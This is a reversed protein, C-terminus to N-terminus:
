RIPKVVNRGSRPIHRFLVPKLTTRFAKTRYEARYALEKKKFAKCRLGSLIILTAVILHTTAALYIFSMDDIYEVGSFYTFNFLQMQMAIAYAVDRAGRTSIFVLTTASFVIYSFVSLMCYDFFKSFRGYYYGQLRFLLILFLGFAALTFLFRVFQTHFLFNTTILRSLLFMPVSTIVSIAFIQLARKTIEDAMVPIRSLRCIETVSMLITHIVSFLMCLVRLDVTDRAFTRIIAFSVLGLFVGFIAKTLFVTLIYSFSVTKKINKAPTVRKYSKKRRGGSDKSSLVNIVRVPEKLRISYTLAVPFLIVGFLYWRLFSHNKSAAIMAPIYGLLILGLIICSIIHGFM